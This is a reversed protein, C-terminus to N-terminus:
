IKEVKLLHAVKDIMGQVAPTAEKEVEQHMKRIGLAILTQKQRETRKIGSKVQTIKVKAM